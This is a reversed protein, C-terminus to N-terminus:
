PEGINEYTSWTHSLIIYLFTFWVVSVIVSMVVSPDAYHSLGIYAVGVLIMIFVTFEIVSWVCLLRRLWIYYTQRIDYTEVLGIHDVKHYIWAIGSSIGVSVLLDLIIVISTFEVFYVLSLISGICKLVCAIGIWLKFCPSTYPYEFLNNSLSLRNTM